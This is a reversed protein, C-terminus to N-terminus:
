ERHGAIFRGAVASGLIDAGILGIYLAVPMGRARWLGTMFVGAFAAVLSFVIFVDLINM